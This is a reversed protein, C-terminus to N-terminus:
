TLHTLAAQDVVVRPPTLGPTYWDAVQVNDVGWGFMEGMGFPKRTMFTSFVTFPPEGLNAALQFDTVATQSADGFAVIFYRWRDAPLDFWQPGISPDPARELEYMLRAQKQGFGAAPFVITKIYRVQQETGRCLRVDPAIDYPLDVRLDLLEAIQCFAGPTFQLGPSASPDQLSKPPPKDASDNRSHVDKKDPM